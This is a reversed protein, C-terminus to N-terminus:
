HFGFGFQTKSADIRHLWIALLFLSFLEIAIFVGSDARLILESFSAARTSGDVGLHLFGVVVVVKVVVVRDDIM